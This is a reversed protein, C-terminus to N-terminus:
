TVQRLRNRGSRYIAAMPWPKRNPAYPCRTTTAPQPKKMSASGLQDPERLVKGELEYYGGQRESFEEKIRDSVVVQRNIPDITM